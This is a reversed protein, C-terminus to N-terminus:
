GRLAPLVLEKRKFAADLQKLEGSKPDRWTGVVDILCFGLQDLWGCMELMTRAEPTVRPITLELIVFDCHEKLTQLAGQIVLHEAFQVDAKLLCRGKLRRESVILDITTIPVSIVAEQNEVAVLSSGYLDNSITLATRGQKDAVAAEIREMCPKVWAESYRQFLPDCLIFKAESFVESVTGSWIGTSAGVDIVFDPRWGRAHLRSCFLHLERFAPLVNGPTPEDVYNLM